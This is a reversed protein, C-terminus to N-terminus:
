DRWRILVTALLKNVDQDTKYISPSTRMRTAEPEVEIGQM